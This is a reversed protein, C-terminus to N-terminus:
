SGPPQCSNENTVLSDLISHVTDGALAELNELFGPGPPAYITRELGSVPDRFFLMFAHLVNSNFGPLNKGGYRKDGILPHKLVALHRRIQHTRGTLPRVSLLCAREGRFLTRFKTAAEKGDLQTDVMGDDPMKGSVFVLYLKEVLGQQYLKGYSGALSSSKSTIVTGSTGKDLRNVPYLKCAKKDRSELFKMGIAVLNEEGLESTRHVPLGSPKNFIIINEDELLIDPADSATRLLEKTKATEKVTVIDSFRLVSEPTCQRENKAVNGAKILKRLYSLSATPMLKQLFSETRRGHDTASIQFTLM